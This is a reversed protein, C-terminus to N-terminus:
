RLMIQVDSVGWSQETAPREVEAGFLINVVSTSHPIIVDIPVAFKNEPTENGCLNIGGKTEQVAYSEAWVYQNDIKAYASEGAWRDIFHFTAKLRLETHPSDLRVFLKSVEGGAFAGYGGLMRPAAGCQSRTCNSRPSLLLSRPSPPASPSLVTTPCLAAGASQSSPLQSRIDPRAACWASCSASFDEARALFWQSLGMYNLPGDVRLSGRTHLRGHIEVSGDPLVALATKDNTRVAFAGGDASLTFRAASPGLTVRSEIGEGANVTLSSVSLGGSPVSAAAGLELMAVDQLRTELLAVDADSAGLTACCLLQAAAALMAAASGSRASAPPTQVKPPSHDAKQADHGDLLDFTSAFAARVCKAPSIALRYCTRGRPLERESGQIHMHSVHSLLEPHM